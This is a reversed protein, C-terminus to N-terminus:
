DFEEKKVKGHFLYYVKFRDLYCVKWDSYPSLNRASDGIASCGVVNIAVAKGDIVDQWIKEITQKM